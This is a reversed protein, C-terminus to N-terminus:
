KKSFHVMMWAILLVICVTIFFAGEVSTHLGIKKYFGQLPYLSQRLDTVMDSFFYGGLVIVYGLM